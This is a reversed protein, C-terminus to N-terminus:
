YAAPTALYKQISNRRYCSNCQIAAIYLHLYRFHWLKIPSIHSFQSTSSNYRPQIQPKKTQQMTFSACLAHSDRAVIHYVCLHPILHDHNAVRMLGLIFRHINSENIADNTNCSFGTRATLCGREALILKNYTSIRGSQTISSLWWKSLECFINETRDM